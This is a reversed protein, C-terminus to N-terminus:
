KEEWSIPVCTIRGASHANALEETAWVPGIEALFRKDGAPYINAYGTKIFPAMFLDYSEEVGIHRNYIGDEQYFYQEGNEWVTLVKLESDIIEPLHVIRIIKVGARTVVPDGALARELNFPKLHTELYRRYTCAYAVM